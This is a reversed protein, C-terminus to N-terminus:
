DVLLIQRAKGYASAEAAIPTQGNRLKRIEQCLVAAVVNNLFVMMSLVKVSFPMFCPIVWAMSQAVCVKHAPQRTQRERACLARIRTKPRLCMAASGALSAKM